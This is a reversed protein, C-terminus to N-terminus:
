TGGELSVARIPVMKGLDLERPDAGATQLLAPRLTHAHVDDDLLAAPTRPFPRGRPFRAPRVPPEHLVCLSGLTLTTCDPHDCIRLM